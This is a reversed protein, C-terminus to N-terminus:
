ANTIVEGAMNGAVIDMLASEDYHNSTKDKEAEVQKVLEMIKNHLKKSPVKSGGLVNSIYPATVGLYLSLNTRSFPGLPRYEEPPTNRRSLRNIIPTTPLETPLISTKKRM